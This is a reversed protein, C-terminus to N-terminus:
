VHARGIESWAIRPSIELLAEHVDHRARALASADAQLIRLHPSAARAQALTQGEHVGQDQARACCEIVRGRRPAEGELALPIGRLALDSRAAAQLSFAPVHVCGMRRPIAPATSM